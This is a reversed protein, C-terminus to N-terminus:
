LRLGGSVTITEGTIWRAEDSALFAVVDAIDGPAGIRGLATRDTMAHLHEPPNNTLLMDTATAGPAVANVRIGRPGWERALATTLAEVAAKAASYIIARPNPHRGNISGINIISGGNEGIRRAAAQSLFLVSKVNAAFQDDFDAEVLSDVPGPRLLAANNVLIDLSGFCRVAAEVLPTASVVQSVDAQVAVASGGAAIINQVIHEAAAADTLYNVIVKAGDHALKAAIAAGIGRSGGTVLAVKGALRSNIANNM